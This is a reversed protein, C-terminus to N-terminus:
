AVANVSPADVTQHSVVVAPRPTVGVVSCLFEFAGQRSQRNNVVRLGNKGMAVVEAISWMPNTRKFLDGEWLTVGKTTDTYKYTQALVGLVEKPDQKEARLRAALRVYAHWVVAQDAVSEERVRQRKAVSLLALENPRVAGLTELYELMFGHTASYTDETLDPFGSKLADVLTGFTVMKASNRSLHNSLVEVNSAGLIPSQQMLERALLAYVNPGKTKSEIYHATSTSVRWGLFNYVYFRRGEGSFDDTYIVLGYARQPNYTGMEMSGTERM